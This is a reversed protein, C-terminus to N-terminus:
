TLSFKYSVKEDTSIGPVYEDNDLRAMIATETLRKHLMDFNGTQQLYKYFGEWDTCRPVQKSKKEVSYPGFTGSEVKAAVLQDIIADQKVKLKASTQDAALREVNLKNHETILNAVETLSLKPKPATKATAM